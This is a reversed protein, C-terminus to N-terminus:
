YPLPYNPNTKLQEETPDQKPDFFDIRWRGIVYDKKNKKEGILDYCENSQNSISEDDKHYPNTNWWLCEFAEVANIVEKPFLKVKSTIYTTFLTSERQQYDYTERTLSQPLHKRDCWLKYVWYDGNKEERDKPLNLDKHTIPDYYDWHGQQKKPM